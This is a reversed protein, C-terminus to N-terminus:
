LDGYLTTNAQHGGGGGGLPHDIISANSAYSRHFQTVSRPPYQNCPRVYVPKSDKLVRSIVAGTLSQGPALTPRSWTTHVSYVIEFDVDGPLTKEFANRIEIEVEIESWEKRFEFASIIHGNEQLPSDVYEFTGRNVDM